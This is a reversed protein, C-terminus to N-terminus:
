PVAIAVYVRNGFNNGGTDRLRWTSTYVGSKGPALFEVSIDFDQGRGIPVLPPSLSSRGMPEGSEFALRYGAPWDCASNNRMRWTKVFVAAPQVRTGDPISIDSVYAASLACPPAAREPSILAPTVTAIPGSADPDGVVVHVIAPESRADRGSIAVVAITLRGQSAAPVDVTVSVAPEPQDIVYRVPGGEGLTAELATINDQSAAAVALAITAGAEYRDGEVPSLIVVAPKVPTTSQRDPACGTSLALLACTWAAAVRKRSPYGM